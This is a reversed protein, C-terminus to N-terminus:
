VETINHYDTKNTFSVPTGLSGCIQRLDSVSDFLTTDPASQWSRFEFKCRGCHGRVHIYYVPLVFYKIYLWQSKIFCPVWCEVAINLCVFFEGYYNIGNKIATKKIRYIKKEQRIDKNKKHWLYDSLLLLLDLM